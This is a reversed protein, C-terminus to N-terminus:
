PKLAQMAFGSSFSDMTRAVSRLNDSFLDNARQTVEFWVVRFIDCRKTAPSASSWAMAAARTHLWCPM